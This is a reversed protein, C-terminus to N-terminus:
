ARNQVAVRELIERPAGIDIVEVEGLWRGAGDVEFGVKRAVFTLTLEAEFGVGKVIGKDGDLGSPIDIAVRFSNLENSASVAAAFPARLAGTAGTGLMADIVMSPDEGGERMAAFFSKKGWGSDAEVIEFSAKRLIQLNVLADGSYRSDTALKILKLPIGVNSLHRAIVFGDGGNNGSGALICVHRGQHRASIKRACAAGANEMLAIGPMSFEEIAIQDFQRCQQCTLLM